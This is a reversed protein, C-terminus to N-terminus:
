PCRVTKLFTPLLWPRRGWAVVKGTLVARAKSIRHFLMLNVTSPDFFIKVDTDGGPEEVSVQGRHLVITVPTTHHSRFEVAIRRESPPQDNALLEGIDRRLLEVFFVEFFLAADAPPIVWAQKTARAIDYGHLLLENVLHGFMGTIPLQSGGLWTVTSTPDVNETARLMEAVDARLREVLVAPDREAFLGLVHVNFDAVTDVNCGVLKDWVSPDPRGTPGVLGTNMWALSAVHTATVAVSWDATAMAKPDSGAVLTAFRDTAEAVATRAATWTDLTIPM